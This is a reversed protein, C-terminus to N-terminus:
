RFRMSSRGSVPDTTVERVIPVHTVEDKVRRGRATYGLIALPVALLGIGIALAKTAGLGVTVRDFPNQGSGSGTVPLGEVPGCQYIVVDTNGGGEVIVRSEDDVRDAIARCWAGQDQKLEYFGNALGNFVYVGRSDPEGNWDQ